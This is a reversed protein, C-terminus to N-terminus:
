QSQSIGNKNSEGIVEGQIRGIWYSLSVMILMAIVKEIGDKVNIWWFMSGILAILLIILKQNTKM